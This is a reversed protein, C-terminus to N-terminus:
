DVNKMTYLRVKMNLEVVQQEVKAKRAISRLMTYTTNGKNDLMRFFSLIYEHNRNHSLDVYKNRNHSLDVYKVCSYALTTELALLEDIFKNGGEEFGLLVRTAM